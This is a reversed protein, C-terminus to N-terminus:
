FSTAFHLLLWSGFIPMSSHVPCFISKDIQALPTPQQTPMLLHPLKQWRSVRINALFHALNSGLILKSGVLDLSVAIAESVHMFSWHSQFRPKHSGPGTSSNQSSSYRTSSPRWHPSRWIRWKKLYILCIFHWALNRSCHCKLLYNYLDTFYLM